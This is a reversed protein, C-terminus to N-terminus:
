FPPHDQQCAHHQCPANKSVPIFPRRIVDLDAYAPLREAPTGCVVGIIGSTGYDGLVAAIRLEPHAPRGHLRLLDISIIFVVFGEGQLGDLLRHIGAHSGTHFRLQNEPMARGPRRRAAVGPGPSRFLIRVVGKGGTHRLEEFPANIGILQVM